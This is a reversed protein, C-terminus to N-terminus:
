KRCGRPARSCATAFRRTIREWSSRRSCWCYRSRWRLPSGGCVHALLVHYWFLSFAGQHTWSESMRDSARPLWRSVRTHAPDPVVWGSRRWVGYASSCFACLASLCGRWRGEASVCVRTHSVRAPPRGLPSLGWPRALRCRGPRPRVFPWWFQCRQGAV